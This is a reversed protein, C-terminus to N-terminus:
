SHTNELPGTSSKGVRSLWIKCAEAAEPVRDSLETSQDEFLAPGAGNHPCHKQPSDM